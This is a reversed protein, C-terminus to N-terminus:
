GLSTARATASLQLCSSLSAISFLKSLHPTASPWDIEANLQPMGFSSDTLCGPM